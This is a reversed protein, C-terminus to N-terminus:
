SQSEFKSTYIGLGSIVTYLILSIHGVLSIIDVVSSITYLIFPVSFVSAWSAFGYLAWNKKRRLPVFTSQVVNFFTGLLGGFVTFIITPAIIFLFKESMQESRGDFMFLLLGSVYIPLLTCSAIGLWQMFIWILRQLNNLYDKILIAQVIAALLQPIVFILWSSTTSKLLVILIIQSAFFTVCVCLSWIILFHMLNKREIQGNLVKM